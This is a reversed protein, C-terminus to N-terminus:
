ENGEIKQCKKSPEDQDDSTNHMAHISEDSKIETEVEKVDAFRDNFYVIEFKDMSQWKAELLTTIMPSVSIGIKEGKRPVEINPMTLLLQVVEYCGEYHHPEYNRCAHRLATRGFNDRSNIDLNTNPANDLMNQVTEVHGWGCALSFATNGTNDKANLDINHSSSYEMLLKVIECHGLECAIMLNTKGNQNAEKLINVVIKAQKNLM